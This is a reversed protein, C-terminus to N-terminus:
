LRWSLDLTLTPTHHLVRQEGVGDGTWAREPGVWTRDLLALRLALPSGLSAELALGVVPGLGLFDRQAAQYVVAEGSSGEGEGVDETGTAGAWATRQVRRVEAGALLLPGGSWRATGRPGWSALARLGLVDDDEAVVLEEEVPGAVLLLVRALDSHGPEALRSWAEVELGLVEGHRRWGLALGDLPGETALTDLAGLAVRQEAAPAAPSTALAVLLAPVLTPRSVPGWRGERRQATRPM